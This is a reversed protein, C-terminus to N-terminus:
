RSNYFPAVGGPISSLISSATKKELVQYRTYSLTRLIYRGSLLTTVARRHVGGDARERKEKEVPEDTLAL